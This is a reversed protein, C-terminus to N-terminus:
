GVSTNWSVLVKSAEAFSDGDELKPNRLVSEYVAEELNAIVFGISKELLNGFETSKGEAEIRLESGSRRLPNNALDVTKEWDCEYKSEATMGAEVASGLENVKVGRPLPVRRKEDVAGKRAVGLNGPDAASLL